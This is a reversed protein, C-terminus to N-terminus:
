TLFYAVVMNKRIKRAEQVDFISLCSPNCKEMSGDEAVPTLKLLVM